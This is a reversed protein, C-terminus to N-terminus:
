SIAARRAWASLRPLPSKEGSHAPCFTVPHQAIEADTAGRLLLSYIGDAYSDYEGSAEPTDNVGIPDWQEWLVKCIEARVQRAQYKEMRRLTRSASSMWFDEQREGQSRWATAGSRERNTRRSQSPSQSPPEAVTNEAQWFGQPAGVQQAGVVRRQRSADHEEEAKTPKEGTAGTSGPLVLVGLEARLSDVLSDVASRCSGGTGSPGHESGSVDPFRSASDIGACSLACGLGVQNEGSSIAM